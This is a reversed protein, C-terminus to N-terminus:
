PYNSSPNINEFSHFVKLYEEYKLWDSSSGSYIKKRVQLSSATQVTGTNLEPTLCNEEWSLGTRQILNKIHLGPNTVLEDYDLTIVDDLFSVNREMSSSYLNFFKVTDDLSCSYGLDNGAFYNRFNSWCVAKPDRVVRIVLAEPFAKNILPLFRFNHPMKDIFYDTNLDHKSVRNLYSERFDFLHKDTFNRKLLHQDFSKRLYNLEGLSTVRSHQSIIRDVLTTGSRPMGVIFIPKPNKHSYTLTSCMDLQDIAKDILEFYKRDTDFNYNLELKRNANGKMLHTFASKFDSTDEYIKALTFHLHALDGCHFENSVLCRELFALKPDGPEYTKVLSLHRHASFAHPELEIIKEYIIAAKQTDGLASYTNGLSNLAGIHNPNVELCRQFNDVAKNNQGLKSYSNGLDFYTNPRSPDIRIAELFADISRQYDFVLQCALGLNFWSDYFGPEVEIAIEFQKIAEDYKGLCRFSHGLNNLAPAFKPEIEVVQSLIAVSEKIEGRHTLAVGLNNKYHLDSPNIKIAAELETVAQTLEGENLHMSGLRGLIRDNNPFQAKATKLIKIADANRNADQYNSATAIYYTPKPDIKLLHEFILAANTFRKNLNLTTAFNLAHFATKDDLFFSAEFANLADEIKGQERLAIGLNNYASSLIPNYHIAKQAYASAENSSSLNLSIAALLNLIRSDNPYKNLSILANQKAAEINGNAYLSFSKNLEDQEVLLIPQEPLSLKHLDRLTQINKTRIQNIISKVIAPSKLNISVDLYHEWYTVSRPERAVAFKAYKLALVSLGLQAFCLSLYYNHKAIRLKDRDFRLERLLEDTTKVDFEILANELVNEM